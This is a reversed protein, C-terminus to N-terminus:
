DLETLVARVPSAECDKLKLPLANLNYLGPNIESLDIGELIIVENGLLFKHVDFNNTGLEEITIYDIGIFKVGKQVLYKAAKHTLYIFEENFENEKLYSSNKTKFLIKDSKIEHDTLERKTIIKKNKIEIVQTKGMFRELKINDINKGNEIFHSPADVHTGVHVSFRINSLKYGDTNIDKTIEKRTVIDGPFNIMDNKIDISIDYIKKNIM